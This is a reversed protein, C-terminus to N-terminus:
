SEYLYINKLIKETLISDKYSNMYLNFIHNNLKDLLNQFCAQINNNDNCETYADIDILLQYLEKYENSTINVGKNVKVQYNTLIEKGITEVGKRYNYLKGYQILDEYINSEVDSIVHENFWTCFDELQDSKYANIKRIGLRKESIIENEKLIKYLDNLIISFYEFKEYSEKFNGYKNIVIFLPSIEIKVKKEENIFVFFTKQSQDLTCLPPEGLSSEETNLKLNFDNFFARRKEYGAKLLYQTFSKETKTEFEVIDDFDLRLILNQLYNVKILSRKESYDKM